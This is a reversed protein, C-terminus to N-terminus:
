SIIPVRAPSRVEYKMENHMYTKSFIKVDKQYGISSDFVFHLGNITCNVCLEATKVLTISRKLAHISFSKLLEVSHRFTIPALLSCLVDGKVLWKSPPPANLAKKM